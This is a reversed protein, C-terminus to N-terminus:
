QNRAEWSFAHTGSSTGQAADPASSQLTAQVRYVLANSASWTTGSGPATALGNAYTNRTQEFNQLTGAFLQGAGTAAFGSCGPFVSSTTTGQTITLDIYLALPGPSSPSYMRVTAPLTGTYTVKICRTVTDGPKLNGANYLAAGDDNDSFSVTGSTIENGPNQTTGSFLGYVGMTAVGGLVGIVLAMVLTRNLFRAM